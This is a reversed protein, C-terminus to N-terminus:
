NTTREPPENPGVHMSHKEGRERIFTINFKADLFTRDKTTEHLKSVAPKGVFGVGAFFRFVWVSAFLDFGCPRQALFCTSVAWVEGRVWCLAVCGDEDRGRVGIFALRGGWGTAFGSHEAVLGGGGVAPRGAVVVGGRAGGSFVTEGGPDGGAEPLSGPSTQGNRLGILVEGFGVRV